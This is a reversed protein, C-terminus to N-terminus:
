WLEGKIEQIFVTAYPFYELLESFISSSYDNIRFTVEFLVEQITLSLHIDLSLEREELFRLRIEYDNLVNLSRWFNESTLVILINQPTNQIAAIVECNTILASLLIDLNTL